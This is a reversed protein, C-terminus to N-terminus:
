RAQLVATLAIGAGISRGYQALADPHAALAGLIVGVTGHEALTGVRGLGVVAIGLVRRGGQVLRLGIRWERALSRPRFGGTRRKANGQREELWSLTRELLTTAAELRVAIDQEENEMSKREQNCHIDHSFGV